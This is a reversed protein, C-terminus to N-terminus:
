GQDGTRQLEESTKLLSESESSEMSQAQDLSVIELPPKEPEPPPPPPQLDPVESLPIRQEPKMNAIAELVERLGLIPYKEIVADIMWGDMKDEISTDGEFMREGQFKERLRQDLHLLLNQDAALFFPLYMARVEYTVRPSGMESERTKKRAVLSPM